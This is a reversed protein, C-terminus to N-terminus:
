QSSYLSTAIEWGPLPQPLTLVGSYVHRSFQLYLVGINEL